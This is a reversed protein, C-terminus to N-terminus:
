HGPPPAGFKATHYAVYYPSLTPNSPSIYAECTYCWFSLDIFGCVINHGTTEHHSLMHQNVHRGCHVEHCILCMMNEGINGCCGCPAKPDVTMGAPSRIEKLHECSSIPAVAFWSSYDTEDVFDQEKRKMGTSAGGNGPKIDGINKVKGERQTVSWVSSRLPDFEMSYYVPEEKVELHAVPEGYHGYFEVDVVSSREARYIVSVGTSTKGGVTTSKVLTMPVEEEDLGCVATGDADQWVAVTRRLVFPPIELALTKMVQTLVDNVPAHIRLDTESDLPTRQLNVIVLKGGRRKTELPMDCAPSVTLSSGLVIHLDSERSHQFGSDIVSTPLNEGFHIITDELAGDCGAAICQRGTLHNALGAGVSFDRLYERKCKNCYEINSNGHLESIDKKPIGSKRHLGDVNPSIVHHLLGAKMLQVLSMHTATPVAKMMDMKKIKDQEGKASLTWVGEPGRYDPIGAATSIGAGTFVTVKKATKIMDALTDSKEVVVKPEEHLEEAMKEDKHATWSM